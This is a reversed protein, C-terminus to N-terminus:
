TMKSTAASQYAETSTLFPGVAQDPARLRWCWSDARWFIEFSGSKHNYLNGRPAEEQRLTPRRVKERRLGGCGQANAQPVADRVKAQMRNKPALWQYPVASDTPM